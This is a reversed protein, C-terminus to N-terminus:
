EHQGYIHREIDFDGLMRFGMGDACLTDLDVYIVQDYRHEEIYRIIRAVVEYCAYIRKFIFDAQATAVYLDGYSVGDIMDPSAIVNENRDLLYGKYFIAYESNSPLCVQYFLSRIILM